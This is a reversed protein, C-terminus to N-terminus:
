GPAAPAPKVSDIFCVQGFRFQLADDRDFCERDSYLRVTYPNDPQELARCPGRLTVIYKGKGFKTSAMYTRDDVKTLSGLDRFKLCAQQSAEASQGMAGLAVVGGAALLGGLVVVSRMTAEEDFDCQDL